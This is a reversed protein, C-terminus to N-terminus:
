LVMILRARDGDAAQPLSFIRAICYRGAEPLETGMPACVKCLFGDPLQMLIGARDCKNHECGVARMRALNALISLAQEV